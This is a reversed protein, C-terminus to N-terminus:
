VDFDPSEKKFKKFNRIFSMYCNFGSLTSIEKISLDSNEKMLNEAYEIRFKNIYNNYNCNFEENIIKSLYFRNTGIERALEPLTLDQQLYIKRDRMTINLKQIITHKLENSIPKVEITEQDPIVILEQRNGLFGIIWFTIGLFLFPFIITYEPNYIIDKTTPNCVTSSILVMAIYFFSSIGIWRLRKKCVESYYNLVKKLHKKIKFNILILYFVSVSLFSYRAFLEVSYAINQKNNFNEPNYFNRFVSISEANNLYIFHIFLLLTAVLFPFVIHKIYRKIKLNSETLRLLYIYLTPIQLITFFVIFFYLPRYIFLINNHFLLEGLFTIFGCFMFVALHKKAISNKGSSFILEFFWFLCVIVPISFSIIYVNDM